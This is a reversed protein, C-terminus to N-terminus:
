ANGKEKRADRQDERKARALARSVSGEDIGTDIAIQRIAARHKKGEVRHKVYLKQLDTM